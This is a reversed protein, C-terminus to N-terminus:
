ARTELDDFDGKQQKYMNYYYDLRKQYGMKEADTEAYGLAKTYYDVGGQIKQLREAFYDKKGKVDDIIANQKDNTARRKEQAEAAAKKQGEAKYKREMENQARVSAEFEEKKALKDAASMKGDKASNNFATKKLAAAKM